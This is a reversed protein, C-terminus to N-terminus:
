PNPSIVSVRLLSDTALSIEATDIDTIRAATAKPCAALLGCVTLPSCTLTALTSRISFADSRSQGGPV